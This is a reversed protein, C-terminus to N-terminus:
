VHVTRWGSSRSVPGASAERFGPATMPWRLLKAAIAASNGTSPMAEVWADGWPSASLQAASAPFLKPGPLISLPSQFGLPSVTLVLALEAVTLAGKQRTMPTAVGVLSEWIPKSTHSGGAVAQSPLSCPSPQPEEAPAMEKPAM